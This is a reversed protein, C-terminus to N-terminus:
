RTPSKPSANGPKNQGPSPLLNGPRTQGSPEQQLPQTLQDRSIPNSPVRQLSSQVSQVSARVSSIDSQMAKIQTPLGKTVQQNLAEVNQNLLKSESDLSNIRGELNKLREIEAKYANVTFLQQQMRDQQLKLWFAFGALLGLSLVSIGTLLGLWAYLRRVERNLTVVRPNEVFEPSFSDAATTLPIEPQDLVRRDPANGFTDDSM